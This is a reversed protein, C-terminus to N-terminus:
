LSPPNPEDSRSRAPLLLARALVLPASLVLVAGVLIMVAGGAARMVAETAHENV